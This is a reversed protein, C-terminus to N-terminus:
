LEWSDIKHLSHKECCDFLADKDASFPTYAIFDIEAKKASIYDQVSDGILVARNFNYKKKILNVNDVKSTPSGLIELFNQSLGKLELTKRLNSQESGSAVFCQVKLSNIFETFFPTIKATSYLLECGFSYLNLLETKRKAKNEQSSAVIEDFFKDAHHFRSLGFNSAFYNSCKEIQEKSDLLQELAKEMVRIKLPNSDLIVGDCDFILADYSDFWRM